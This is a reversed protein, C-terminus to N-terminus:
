THPLPMQALPERCRQIGAVQRGGAMHQVCVAGDPLRRCRLADHAPAKDRGKHRPSKLRRYGAARPRSWVCKRLRAM